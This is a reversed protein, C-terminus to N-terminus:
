GRQRTGAEEARKFGEVRVLVEFGRGRGEGSGGAEGGVSDFVAVMTRLRPVMVTILMKKGGRPTARRQPIDRSTKMLLM